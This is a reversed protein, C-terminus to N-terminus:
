CSAAFCRTAARSSIRMDDRAAVLHKAADQQYIIELLPFVRASSLAIHEPQHEFTVTRGAVDTVTIPYDAAFTSASFLSGVAITLITKTINLM